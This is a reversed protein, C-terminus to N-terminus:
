RKQFHESLCPLIILFFIYHLSIASDFSILPMISPWTFFLLTRESCSEVKLTASSGYTYIYIHIYPYIQCVQLGGIICLSNSVLERRETFHKNKVWNIKNTVWFYVSVFSLSCLSYFWNHNGVFLEFRRGKIFRSQYYSWRRVHTCLLKYPYNRSVSLKEDTEGMIGELASVVIASLFKRSVWRLSLLYEMYM